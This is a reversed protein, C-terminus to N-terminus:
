GTRAFTSAQALAEVVAGCSQCMFSSNWRQMAKSYVDRNYRHVNRLLLLLLLPYAMGMAIGINELMSVEIAPVPKSTKHDLQRNPPGQNVPARLATFTITWFMLGFMGVLVWAAVVGGYSRPRPPTALQSLRSQSTGRNKGVFLGRGFGVMTSQIDRTGALYVFSLKKFDSSGCSRCYMTNAEKTQGRVLKAACRPEAYASM